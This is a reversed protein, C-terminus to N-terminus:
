ESLRNHPLRTRGSLIHHVNGSTMGYEKALMELTVVRPVYRSKIAEVIDESFRTLNHKGSAVTDKNNTSYTGGLLHSAKICRANDCIHRVVQPTKGTALMYVFVHLGVHRKTGNIAVRVTAYGKANGKYDHEICTM